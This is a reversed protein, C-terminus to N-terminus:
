DQRSLVIAAVIGACLIIIMLIDAAIWAWWGVVPPPETACVIANEREGVRSCSDGELTEINCNATINKQNLISSIWADNGITGPKPFWLNMNGTPYKAVCTCMSTTGDLMKIECDTIIESNAVFDGYHKVVATNDNIILKTRDWGEIEAKASIQIAAMPLTILITCVMVCLSSVISFESEGM